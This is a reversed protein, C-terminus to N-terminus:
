QSPWLRQVLQAIEVIVQLWTQWDAQLSDAAHGKITSANKAQAPPGAPEFVSELYQGIALAIELLQPNDHLRQLWTILQTSVGITNCLNLLLQVTSTLEDLSTFPNSSDRLSALFDLLEKLTALNPLSLSKSNSSATM